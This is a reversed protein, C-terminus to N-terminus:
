ICVGSFEGLAAYIKDIERELNAFKKEVEEFDGLRGQDELRLAIRRASEAGFAGLSGLLKHAASELGASDRQAISERISGLIEPTNENFLLILKEMLEEDGDSQDLLQERSFTVGGELKGAAPIAPQFSASSDSAPIPSSISKPISDLVKFIDEKRLPKSVYDDM